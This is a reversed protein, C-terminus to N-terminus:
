LEEMEKIIKKMDKYLLKIAELKYRLTKLSNTLNDDNLNVDKNSKDLKIIARRCRLLIKFQDINMLVRINRGTYHDGKRKLFLITDQKFKSNMEDSLSIVRMKKYHKADGIYGDGEVDWISDGYSSKTRRIWALYNAVWEELKKWPKM